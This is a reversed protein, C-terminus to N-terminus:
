KSKDLYKWEGNLKIKISGNDVRWDDFWVDSIFNGKENIYNWKNNLKVCGFGDIFDCAM